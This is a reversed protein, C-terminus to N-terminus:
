DLKTRFREFTEAILILYASNSNDHESNEIDAWPDFPQILLTEPNLGAFAYVIDTCLSSDLHEPVFKGDGKRYLAWSTMYCAIRPGIQKLMKKSSTTSPIYQDIIKDFVNLKCIESSGALIAAVCRGKMLDFFRSQGCHGHHLTGSSFFPYVRHDSFIYIRSKRNGTLKATVKSVPIFHLVIKRIGPSVTRRVNRRRLM